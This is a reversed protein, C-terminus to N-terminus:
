SSVPAGTVSDDYNDDYAQELMALLVAAPQAGNVGYKADVVFFPVGTIGYAAAQQEDARVADAYRDSALVQHAEAADMGVEAALKVLTPRDSVPEGDTFTARLLREKLERQRGHEAALHLLRHADFTNGGRIREFHFDLGEAKATQTMQENLQRAREVTLGYKHALHEDHTGTRAPAAAPDLEFSRYTVTVEDAHPFGALAQEFRRKGIYCWPCVVDSWIEVQM